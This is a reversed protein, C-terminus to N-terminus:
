TQPYLTCKFFICLGTNCNKQFGTEIRDLAEEFLIRETVLTLTEQVYPFKTCNLVSM